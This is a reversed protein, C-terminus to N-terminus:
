KLDDDARGTMMLGAVPPGAVRGSHLYIAPIFARIFASVRAFTCYPLYYPLGPCLHIFPIM